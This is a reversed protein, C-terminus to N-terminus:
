LLKQESDDEPLLQPSISSVFLMVFSYRNGWVSNIFDEEENTFTKNGFVSFSTPHFLLLYDHVNRNKNNVTELVRFYDHVNSARQLQVVVNELEDLNVDEDKIQEFVNLKIHYACFKLSVQFGIQELIVQAGRQHGRDSQVPINDFDIGARICNLFVATTTL